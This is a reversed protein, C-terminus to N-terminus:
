ISELFREASVIPCSFKGSLTLLDKDGSVLYDAKGTIALELFSVDFPDRCVPTRPRNVPMRVTACWPLYDSLLERQDHASLRFNPYALM